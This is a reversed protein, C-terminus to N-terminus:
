LSSLPKDAIVEAARAAGHPTPVIGPNNGIVTRPRDLLKKKFHDRAARSEPTRGRLLKRADNRVFAGGRLRDLADRETPTELRIEGRARRHLDACIRAVERQRHSDWAKFILTRAALADAAKAADEKPAQGPPPARV